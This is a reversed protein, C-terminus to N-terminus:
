PRGRVYQYTGAPPFLVGVEGPFTSVTLTVIDDGSVGGEYPGMDVGAGQPRPIGLLDTEPAGDATGTDICPSGARLRLSGYSTDVLLPDASINGEGEFGGGICSYTVSGNETIMEPNQPATNGWVICNKLTCNGSLGGSSM